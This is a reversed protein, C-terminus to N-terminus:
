SHTLYMLHLRAELVVPLVSVAVIALVVLTFNHKVFPFNGARVVARLARVARCPHILLAGSTRMRMATVTGMYFSLVSPRASSTAPLSSASPGCPPAASTTCPLPATSCIELAQLMSPPEARVSAGACAEVAHWDPPVVLCAHVQLLPRSPGSSRFSARWSSRRGAM